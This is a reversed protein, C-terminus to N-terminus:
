EDNSLDERREREIDELRENFLEELHHEYYESLHSKIAKALDIAASDHDTLVYAQIARIISESFIWDMDGISVCRLLVENQDDKPLSAYYPYDNGRLIEKIKEKILLEDM